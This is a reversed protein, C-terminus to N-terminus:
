RATFPQGDWGTSLLSGRQSCTESCHTSADDKEKMWSPMERSMIRGQGHGPSTPLQPLKLPRRAIHAGTEMFGKQLGSFGAQCMEMSSDLRQLTENTRGLDGGVGVLRGNTAELHENTRALAEKTKEVDHRLAQADAAGRAQERSLGATDGVVQDLSESLAVQRHDLGEMRQSARQLELRLKDLNAHMTAAFANAQSLGERTHDMGTQSAHLGQELVQTDRALKEHADHMTEQTAHLTGHNQQITHIVADHHDQRQKVFTSDKRLSEVVPQLRCMTAKLNEIQASQDADKANKADASRQLIALAAASKDVV